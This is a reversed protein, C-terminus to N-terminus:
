LEIKKTKLNETSKNSTTALVQAVKVKGRIHETRASAPTVLRHHGHGPFLKECGSERESSDIQGVGLQGVFGDLLDNQLMICACGKFFLNLVIKVGSLKLSFKASKVLMKNGYNKFSNYQSM